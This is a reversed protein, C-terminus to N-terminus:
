PCKRDTEFPRSTEPVVPLTGARQTSRVLAASARPGLLRHPSARAPHLRPRQGRDGHSRRKGPLNSRPPGGRDAVAAVPRGPSRRETLTPRWASSRDHAWLDAAQLGGSRVHRKCAIRTLVRACVLIRACIDGLAITWTPRPAPATRNPASRGSASIAPGQWSSLRSWASRLRRPASPSRRRPALDAEDELGREVLGVARRAAARARRRAPPPAASRRPFGRSAQAQGTSVSTCSLSCHASAACATSTSCIGAKRQRWVSRSIAAARVPRATLTLFPCNRAGQSM